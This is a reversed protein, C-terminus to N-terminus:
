YVGIQINMKMFSTIIKMHSFSREYINIFFYIEQFYFFGITSDHLKDAFKRLYNLEQKSSIMM